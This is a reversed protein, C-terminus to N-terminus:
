LKILKFSKSNGVCIIYIGSPFDRLDVQFYSNNIQKELILEGM